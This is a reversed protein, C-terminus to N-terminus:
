RPEDAAAAVEATYRASMSAVVSSLVAAAPAAPPSGVEAAPRPGVPMPVPHEAPSDVPTAPPAPSDHERWLDHFRSGSLIAACALLFLGLAAILGLIPGPGRTETNSSAPGLPRIVLRQLAPVQSADAVSSMDAWLAAFAANAVRAALAANPAQVDAVIIPLQGSAVTPISVDLTTLARAPIRPRAPPVASTSPQQAVAPPPNAVLHDPALGARRAIDDTIPPSTMLTALVSARSALTTMDTGTEAGVDAVQSRASDVLATASAVGVTYQRSKPPLGPRLPILAGALCACALAVGVLVRHRGLRHLTEIMWM